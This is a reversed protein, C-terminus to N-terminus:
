SESDIPVFHSEYSTNLTAREVHVTLAATLWENM